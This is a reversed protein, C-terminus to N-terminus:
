YAGRRTAVAGVTRGLLAIDGAVTWRQVYHLDLALSQDWDLDSRGSVQWLGTLGPKVELRGLANTDYSAVEEPLAPRPGVLSMQGLFVNLLQPLEDISTVRLWRGVRTIRPDHTLKFLPGAAQNQELLAARITDADRRMSRFKFMTFQQGRLGVRRQTYVPAGPTDLRVILAVLLLLPALILLGLGSLTIDLGRKAIRQAWHGAAQIGTAEAAPAQATPQAEVVTQTAVVSQVVAPAQTAAPEFVYSAIASINANSLATFYREEFQQHSEKSHIKAFKVGDVFTSM